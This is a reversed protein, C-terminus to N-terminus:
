TRQGSKPIEIANWFCTKVLPIASMKHIGSGSRCTPTGFVLALLEQVSSERWFLSLRKQNPGLICISPRCWWMTHRTGCIAPSVGCKTERRAGTFALSATTGTCVYLTLRSRSVIMLTRLNSPRYSSNELFLEKTEWSIVSKIQINMQIWVTVLQNQVLNWVFEMLVQPEKLIKTYILRKTLHIRESLHSTRSQSSLIGKGLCQSRRPRLILPEKQGTSTSQGFLDVILTTSQGRIRPTYTGIRSWNVLHKSQWESSRTM